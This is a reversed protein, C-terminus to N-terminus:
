KLGKAKALAAKGAALLERSEANPRIRFGDLVPEMWKLCNSLAEVLDPLATHNRILGSFDNIFAEKDWGETLAGRMWVDARDYEGDADWIKEAMVRYPDQDTM